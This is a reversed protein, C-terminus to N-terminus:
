LEQGRRKYGKSNDAMNERGKLGEQKEKLAALVSRRGMSDAAEGTEMSGDTELGTRTVRLQAEKDDLYKEANELYEGLTGTKEHSVPNMDIPIGAM